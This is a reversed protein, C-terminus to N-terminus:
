VDVEEPLIPVFMKDLEEQSFFKPAIYFIEDSHEFEQRSFYLHERLVDFNIFDKYDAIGEIHAFLTLKYRHGEPVYLLSIGDFTM